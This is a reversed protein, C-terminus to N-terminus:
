MALGQATLTKLSQEQQLRTAWALNFKAYAHQPDLELARRLEVIAGELDGLEKLATGLYAQLTANGPDVMLGRRYARAAGEHDGQDTCTVGLVLLIDARRPEIRLGYRFAAEAEEQRQKMRYCFGLNFHAQSNDRFLQISRQYWPIAEDYHGESQMLLGMNFPIAPCGPDLRFAKGFMEAALLVEGRLFADTAAENYYAARGQLHEAVLRAVPVFVRQARRGRPFPILTLIGQTTMKGTMKGRTADTASAQRRRM